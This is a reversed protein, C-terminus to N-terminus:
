KRYSNEGGRVKQLQKRRRESETATKVEEEKRYSNEGGRVKREDKNV